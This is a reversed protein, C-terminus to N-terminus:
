VKKFVISVVPVKVDKPIPQPKGDPDKATASPELKVTMTKGDKSLVGVRKTGGKEDPKGDRKLVTMVVKGGQMVWKGSSPHTKKDPTNELLTTFTGDSKLDLKYTIKPVEAGAPPPPSFSLKGVWKGVPSAAAGPKVPAKQASSYAVALLAIPILALTRKM